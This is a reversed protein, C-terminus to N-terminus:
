QISKMMRLMAEGARRAAEHPGATKLEESFTEVALPGDYGITKLAGLFGALDIVGEGPLLRKMDQLEDRSGPYADNVHVHVVKDRPLGRIDDLTAHSTYWHYSDLLLGCTADDIDSCLELMGGMTHVFPTGNARSTKPGVFELGLKLGHHALVAAVKKLRSVHMARYDAPDGKCVPMIWTAMGRTGLAKMTSAIGPLTALGAEFAADEERFNVPLGGHAIICKYSACYEQVHALSTRKVWAHWYDAGHDVAAFGNSAALAVFDSPDPLAATVPNLASYLSSGEQFLRFQAYAFM